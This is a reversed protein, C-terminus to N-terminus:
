RWRSATYDPSCNNNCAKLTAIDGGSFPNIVIEERDDLAQRSIALVGLLPL